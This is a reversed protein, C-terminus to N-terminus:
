TLFTGIIVINSVETQKLNLDNNKDESLNLGTLQDPLDLSESM